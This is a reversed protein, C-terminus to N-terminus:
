NGLQRENPTVAMPTLNAAVSAAAVLRNPHRKSFGWRECCYAEFTKHESEYLEDAHIGDETPPDSTMSPRSVDGVAAAVLDATLASRTGPAQRHAPALTNTAAM